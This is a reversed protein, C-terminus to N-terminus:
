EEDFAGGVWAPNNSMGFPDAQTSKTIIDENKFSVIDVRFTEYTKKM